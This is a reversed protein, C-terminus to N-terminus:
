ALWVDDDDGHVEPALRRVRRESFLRILVGRVWWVSAGRRWRQCAATLEGARAGFPFFRSLTDLVLDDDGLLLRDEFITVLPNSDDDRGTVDHGLLRVAAVTTRVPGPLTATVHAHVDDLRYVGPAIMAVLDAAAVVAEYGNPRSV